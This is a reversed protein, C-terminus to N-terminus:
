AGAVGKSSASADNMSQYRAVMRSGVPAQDWLEWENASRMYMLPRSPPVCRMHMLPRLLTPGPNSFRTLGRKVGNKQMGGCQCVKSAPAVIVILM